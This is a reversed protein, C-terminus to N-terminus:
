KRMKWILWFSFLLSFYSATIALFQMTRSTKESFKAASVILLSSDIWIIKFKWILCFDFYFWGYDASKSIQIQLHLAKEAYGPLMVLSSMISYVIIKLHFQLFAVWEKWTKLIHILLWRSSERIKYYRVCLRIM